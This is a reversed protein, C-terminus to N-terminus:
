LAFRRRFLLTRRPSWHYFFFCISYCYWGSYVGCRYWTMKIDYTNYCCCSCYKTGTANTNRSPVFLLYRRLRRRRRRRRASVSCWWRRWIRQPLRSTSTALQVNSKEYSVRARFRVQMKGREGTSATPEKKIKKANEGGDVTHRSHTDFLGECCCHVHIGVSRIREHFVQGDIAVLEIILGRLRFPGLFTQHPYGVLALAEHGRANLSLSAIFDLHLVCLGSFTCKNVLVHNM